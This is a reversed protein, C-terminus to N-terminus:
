NALFFLLLFLFSFFFTLIQTSPTPLSSPPIYSVPLSFLSTGTVLIVKKAGGVTQAKLIEEIPQM